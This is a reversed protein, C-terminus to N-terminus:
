PAALGGARRQGHRGPSGLRLPPLCRAPPQRGPLLRSAGAGGGVRGIEGRSIAETLIKIENPSRLCLRLHCMGLLDNTVRGARPPPRACPHHRHCLSSTRPMPCRPPFGVFDGAALCRGQSQAAARSRRCLILQAVHPAPGPGPQREWKKM